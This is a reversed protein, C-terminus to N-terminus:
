SIVSDPPIFGFPFDESKSHKVTSLSVDMGFTNRCIEKIQENTPRVNFYGKGHLDKILAPLYGKIGKGEDKVFYTNPHILNQDVLIEMVAKYKAVSDFILDLRDPLPAKQKQEKRLQDRYERIFARPRERLFDRYQRIMRDYELDIEGSALLRTTYKMEQQIFEKETLGPSQQQAKSFRDLFFSEDNGPEYSYFSGRALSIFDPKEMEGLSTPANSSLDPEIQIAEYPKNYIGPEVQEVEEFVKNIADRENIAEVLTREPSAPVIIEKGEITTQEKRSYFVQFLRMGENDSQKKM